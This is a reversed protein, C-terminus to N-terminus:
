GPLPQCGHCRHDDHDGRSTLIGVTVSDSAYSMICAAVMFVLLSLNIDGTGEHAYKSTTRRVQM